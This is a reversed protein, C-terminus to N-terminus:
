KALRANLRDFAARVRALAHASQGEARTKLVELRREIMVLRQRLDAAVDRADAKALHVKIKARDSAAQAKLELVKLHDIQTLLKDELGSWKRELEMLEFYFALSSENAARSAKATLEHLSADAEHIFTEVVGWPVRPGRGRSAPPKKASPKPQRDLKIVNSM